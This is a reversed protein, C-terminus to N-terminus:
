QRQPRIQRHSWHSRRWDCSNEIRVRHSHSSDMIKLTSLKLSLLPIFPTSIPSSSTPQTQPLPVTSHLFHSQPTSSTLSHLPPLSVTSHIALDLILDTHYIRQCKGRQTQILKRM